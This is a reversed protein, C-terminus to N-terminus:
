FLEIDGSGMHTQCVPNHKAKEILEAAEDIAHKFQNLHQTFDQLGDANHQSEILSLRAISDMISMLSDVRSNVHGLIQTTLDQFQLSTVAVRVDQEVQCAIGSLQDATATMEHNILQVTSLMQDVRTKSNLAFNMDKSAMDNIAHEAALVSVNVDDMHERIQSSFQSSRNSLTRVEDAVVAFGRGAEGARAAEIAANLALLNTQKSIADIEGLVSLIRSVKVIIDDMMGVLEMGVKSTNVTTTVFVDLTESTENVFHEFASTKDLANPEAKQQETLRLALNQQSRTQSELGTFSSVLKNIADDLIKRVQGLENNITEFQQNFETALDSFLGQTKKSLEDFETNISQWKAGESCKVKLITRYLITIWGLTLLTFTAFEPIGFHTETPPSNWLSNMIILALSLVLFQLLASVFIKREPSM